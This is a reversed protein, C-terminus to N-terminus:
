VPYNPGPAAHIINNVSPEPEIAALSELSSVSNAHLKTKLWGVVQLKQAMTWLVPLLTLLSATINKVTENKLLYALVGDDIVGHGNLWGGAWSLFARVVGWLIMMLAVKTENNM